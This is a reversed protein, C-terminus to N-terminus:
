WYEPIRESLGSVILLSRGPSSRRPTPPTSSKEKIWITGNVAISYSLFPSSTASWRAVQRYYFIEAPRFLRPRFVKSANSFLFFTSLSPLYLALFASLLRTLIVGHPSFKRESIVTTLVLSTFIFFLCISGLFGISKPAM